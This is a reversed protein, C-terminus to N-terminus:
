GMTHRQDLSVFCHGASVNKGTVKEKITGKTKFPFFLCNPPYQGRLEFFNWSSKEDLQYTKIMISKRLLECIKAM